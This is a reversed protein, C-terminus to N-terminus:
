RMSEQYRVAVGQQGDVSEVAFRGVLKGDKLMAVDQAYAAVSPEHTVM